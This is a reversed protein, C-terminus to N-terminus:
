INLKTCHPKQDKWNQKCVCIKICMDGTYKLWLDEYIFPKRKKTEDKNEGRSYYKLEVLYKTGCIEYNYYHRKRNWMVRM